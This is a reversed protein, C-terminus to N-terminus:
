FIEKQRESQKASLAATLTMKIMTHDERAGKQGCPSLKDTALSSNVLRM